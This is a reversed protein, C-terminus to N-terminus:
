APPLRRGTGIARDPDQGAARRREVRGGLAVRATGGDRGLEELRQGAEIGVELDTGGEGFRPAEAVVAPLDREM